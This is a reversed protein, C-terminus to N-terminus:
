FTEKLYESFILNYYYICKDNNHLPILTFLLSKTIFKLNQFDEQTFKDLFFKKFVIIMKAQYENSIIKNNLILDYGVLSQYLKAWDYLWDGYISLVGNLSGRMDIFKIKEHTNILINSLVTDGHIITKRGKNNSKYCILLERLKHYVVGSQPFKSYDFNKYRKDLKEVYNSYIDVNNTDPLELSHIRRITDMIAILNNETLLECTLLSSATIGKIKEIKYWLNDPHYDLFIPFIDKLQNPINKYYYIEGSLNDSIKKYSEIIDHQITNFDRPKIKDNYYGLEKDLNSYASIALDDIYFDAYPKGFYIEDYPIDFKKLTEFTIIGIDALLKGVNGSHTKMRRATYIIITNGFRKLTKLININKQIPEVTTYDGDVKPYTVLTNDFDFCIRKNKIKCSFNNCNIVPYNNCFIRVQTPTGLCVWKSKEITYNNFIHSDKIMLDIINSTYFEGKQLINNEICINTYKLLSKYSNFGYAGTCALNSIKDKEVIKTINKNENLEIYSYIPNVNLDEITFIKNEKNWLLLIDINYFNDGALCLIPEDPINLKSLAINITEAAGRTNKELCFFIFNIHPYAKKLRAEIRFSKYEKNYPIYVLEDTINLNNLLYHIIPTGFVNIFAKPNTYGNQKFRQGTGGLPILIMYEIM